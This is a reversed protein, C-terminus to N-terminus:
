KKTDLFENLKAKIEDKDVINRIGVAFPVKDKLEMM